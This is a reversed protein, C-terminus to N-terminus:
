RPAAGVKEGRHPLTPQHAVTGTSHPTRAKAQFIEDKPDFSSPTSGGPVQQLTSLCAKIVEECWNTASSDMPPKSLSLSAKTVGGARLLLM